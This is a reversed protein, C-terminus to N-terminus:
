AYWSFYNMKTFTILQDFQMMKLEYFSAVILLNEIHSKPFELINVKCQEKDM